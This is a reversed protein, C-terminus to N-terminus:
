ASSMETLGACVPRCTPLNSGALEQIATAKWAQLETNILRTVIKNKIEKLTKGDVAALQITGRLGDSKGTAPVICWGYIDSNDM